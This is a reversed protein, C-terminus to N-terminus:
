LTIHGESVASSKASKYESPWSKKSTESLASSNSMVNRLDGSGFQSAHGSKRKSNRTIQAGNGPTALKVVVNLVQQWPLVGLAILLSWAWQTADLGGDSVRIWRGGYFV